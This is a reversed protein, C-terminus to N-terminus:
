HYIEGWPAAANEQQEIYDIAINCMLFTDSQEKTYVAPPACGDPGPVGAKHGPAASGLWGMDGRWGNWSVSGRAEVTAAHDIVKQPFGEATLWAASGM